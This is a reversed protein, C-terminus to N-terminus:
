HAPLRPRFITLDACTPIVRLAPLSARRNRLTQVAHETLVVIGDARRLNAAEMRRIVNDLIGGRRWSGSEAREDSFFGRIDYLLRCSPPLHAWIAMMTAIDGRCHILEPALHLAEQRIAISGILMDCFTSALRPQRRYRLPRWRVGCTELRQR